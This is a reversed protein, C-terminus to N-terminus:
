KNRASWRVAGLWNKCTVGDPLEVRAELRGTARDPPDFSGKVNIFVAGGDKLKIKANVVFAAGDDDRGVSVGKFSFDKLRFEGVIFGRVKCEMTSSITLRELTKGNASLKFSIPKRDLFETRGSYVGTKPL